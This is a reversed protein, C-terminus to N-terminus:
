TKLPSVWADLLQALLAAFQQSNISTHLVTNYHRYFPTYGLEKALVDAHNYGATTWQLDNMYLSHLVVLLKGTAHSLRQNLASKELPLPKGEHRLNMSKSLTNDTTLLQNGLVGHISTLLAEHEPALAPTCFRQTVLPAAETLAANVTGGALRTIGKIGDCVLGTTGIPKIGSSGPAADVFRSGLPGFAAAVARFVDSHVSEALDTM